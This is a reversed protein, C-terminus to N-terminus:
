LARVRERERAARVDGGDSQGRSCPTREAFAEETDESRKGRSDGRGGRAEASGQIHSPFIASRAVNVPVGLSSFAAAAHAPAPQVSSGSSLDSLPPKASYRRRERRRSSFRMCACLLVFLRTQACQRACCSSLSLREKRAASPWQAFGSGPVCAARAAPFRATSVPELCSLAARVPLLLLFSGPRGKRSCFPSSWLSPLKRLARWHCPCLLASCFREAVTRQPLGDSARRAGAAGRLRRRAGCSTPLLTAMSATRLPRVCAPLLCALCVYGLLRKRTSSARACSLSSSSSFSCASFAGRGRCSWPKLQRL